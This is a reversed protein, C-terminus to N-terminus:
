MNGKTEWRNKPEFGWALKKKKSPKQEHKKLESDDLYKKADIYEVIKEAAEREAMKDSLNEATVFDGEKIANNIKSELLTPPPPRSHDKDLNSVTRFDRSSSEIKAADVKCVSIKESSKRKRTTQPEFLSELKVDYQRLVDKDEPSTFETNVTEMVQKQLHKVRKETSAKTAEDTRKELLKFKEWLHASVNKPKGKIDCSASESGSPLPQGESAM